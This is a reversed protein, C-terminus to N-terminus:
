DHLPFARKVFDLLEQQIDTMKAKLAETRPKVVIDFTPKLYPTSLRFAERVQRKFRNRQVSEGFRKTVTIGLRPFAAHTLCIDALIWRGTFSLPKHTMRLYQKRTRLRMSKPFFYRKSPPRLNM